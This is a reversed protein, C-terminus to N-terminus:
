SSLSAVLTKLGLWVHKWLRQYLSLKSIHGLKGLKAWRFQFHKFPFLPKGFLFKQSLTLHGHEMAVKCAGIIPWLRLVKLKKKLPKENMLLNSVIPSTKLSQVLKIPEGEWPGWRWTRAFDHDFLSTHSFQREQWLNLLSITSPHLLIDHDFLCNRLHVHSSLQLLISM